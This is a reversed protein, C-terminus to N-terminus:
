ENYKSQNHRLQSSVRDIIDDSTTLSGRMRVKLRDHLNAVRGQGEACTYKLTRIQGFLDQVDLSHGCTDPLGRPVPSTPPTHTGARSDRKGDTRGRGLARSVSELLLM